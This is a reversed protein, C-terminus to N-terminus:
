RIIVDVKQTEGTTGPIRLEYQGPRIAIFSMSVKGAADFEISDIGLPRVEIQNIVVENVWVNRFFAPGGIALEGTGDAEIDLLYYGGSVLELPAEALPKGVSLTIPPLTVRNRRDMLGAFGLTMTRDQAVAETPAFAAPAAVGAEALAAMALKMM